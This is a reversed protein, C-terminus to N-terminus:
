KRESSQRWTNKKQVSWMPLHGVFSFYQRCINLIHSFLSGFGIFPNMLGLGLVEVNTLGTVWIDVILSDVFGDVVVELGIVVM